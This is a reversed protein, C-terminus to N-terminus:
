WFYYYSDLTNNKAIIYGILTVGHSKAPIYNQTVNDLHVYVPAKKDIQTQVQAPALRSNKIDLTYGYEKQMTQVTHAF